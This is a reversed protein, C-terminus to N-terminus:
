PSPLFQVMISSTSDLFSDNIENGLVTSIHVTLIQDAFHINYKQIASM